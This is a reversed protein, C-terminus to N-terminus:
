KWHRKSFVDSAGAARLLADRQRIETIGMDDLVGIASKGQSECNSLGKIFSIIAGAADQEFAGKFQEASMGAVSAFNDLSEGGQEVAM